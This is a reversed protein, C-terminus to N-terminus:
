HMIYSLGSKIKLFDWYKETNEKLYKYNYITSILLSINGALFDSAFVLREPITPFYMPNAVQNCGAISCDTYVNPFDSAITLAEKVLGLRKVYVYYFSESYISTPKWHRLTVCGTHCIHFIISPYNVIFKILDCPRCTGPGDEMHLQIYPVGRELLKKFVASDQYNIIKNNKSPITYNRKNHVKVGLVTRDKEYDLVEPLDEALSIWQCGLVEVDIQKAQKQFDKFYSYDRYVTIAKKISYKSFAQLTQELCEQDSLGQKKPNKQYIFSKGIHMHTDIISM